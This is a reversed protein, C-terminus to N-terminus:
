PESDRVPRPNEIASLTAQADAVVSEDDGHYIAQRVANRINGDEDGQDAALTRLSKLAVRRDDANGRVLVDQLVPLAQARPAKALAAIAPGRAKFDEGTADAIWKPVPDAPAAAPQTSTQAAPPPSASEAQAIRATGAPGAATAVQAVSDTPPDATVTRTACSHAAVSLGGVVFLGVLTLLNNPM